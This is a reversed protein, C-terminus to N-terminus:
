YRLLYSVKVFFLRSTSNTPSGLNSVFPPGPATHLKLDSYGDNYGVYVATGPHLLYTFLIDATLKRTPVIAGGDVGGLNTQLDLLQPNALTADYDLILRLSFEKTFQYNLKSRMLHNNFISHGAAFGAPTSGERTGLRTYIYTEDFRFRSSPRLTFGMNLRKTNGLFPAIQPAPPAARAPFFDEGTGTTFVASFAIWKKPATSVSFLTGHKRFPINEFLEYAESRTLNVTTQRTFDIQFGLDAEWDQLRGERNWDLLGRTLPGFDVIRRHEPRWFYDVVQQLQRIDTRPIFGLEACFNPSIDDYQTTLFTHRGIYNLQLESANGQQTSVGQASPNNVTLCDQSARTDQRTWSHTTQASLILNPSFKLRADLSAVRNNTDSFDRTSLFGGIYSQNGFERAVRLVADGARTNYPGAPQGLGPQRDDIALAGITWQGIKGTMRAGFQPDAIQRSFFLDIPTEFFAANEIFFPRKEPFFVAFRQNITVQPDDTEVQNFDPNLTFDFTLADKAVLKADLGGRHEFATNSRPMAPQTQDLFQEGALLGYPIFQINRGPSVNELGGVPAFQQTIGEVRQTLYPWYVFENKRLIARYLAVGWTQEPEHSFRLSKFPISFFVVYGDKTVRGQNDWLTDFSFDYGQGETYIADTQVGVPNSFFYYARHFDRFTDLLIGVGDDQASDERKSLHARVQGPEDHAVFAAYLNKDDYSLYATTPETAAAGDGPQYQRFETVTLEAERPVDNLYDEFKPARHVRPIKSLPVKGQAPPPTAPGQAFVRPSWPWLLILGILFRRVFPGM